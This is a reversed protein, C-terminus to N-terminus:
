LTMRSSDFIVLDAGDISRAWEAPTWNLKLAPYEYYALRTRCAEVVDGNDRHRLVDDLRRAYEDAGNEVDLIVVRGGLAVVEVAVVLVAISKGVGASAFLLYRKGRILWGDCGPVFERKPIGNRIREILDVRSEALLDTAPHDDGNM